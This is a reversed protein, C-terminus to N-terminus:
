AASKKNRRAVLGLLGLGALMLAYTEPEPVATIFAHNDTEFANQNATFVISTIKSTGTTSVNFYGTTSWANNNAIVTGNFAGLLAGGDYFSVNNWGSTDPSGWLFGYYSLPTSFTVTGTQGGQLSWYNDLSGIPRASVGSIGSTTMNFLEGGVYTAVNFTTSLNSVVPGTNSTSGTGFDFTVAGPKTSYPGASVSTSLGANASWAMSALALGLVAQFIKTKM